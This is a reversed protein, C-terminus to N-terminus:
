NLSLGLFLDLILEQFANTKLLGKFVLFVNLVDKRLLVLAQNEVSSGVNSSVQHVSVLVGFLFDRVNYYAMTTEHLLKSDVARLVVVEFGVLMEHPRRDDVFNTIAAYYSHINDSAVEVDDHFTLVRM